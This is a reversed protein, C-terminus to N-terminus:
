DLPNIIFQIIILSVSGYERQKGKLLKQSECHSLFNSLLVYMSACECKKTSTRVMNGTLIQKRYEKEESGTYMEAQKSTKCAVYTINRKITQKVVHYDCM